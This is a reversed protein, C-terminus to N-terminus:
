MYIKKFTKINFHMYLVFLFTIGMSKYMYYKFMRYMINNNEKFDIYLVLTCFGIQM